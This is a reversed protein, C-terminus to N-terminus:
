TLFLMFRTYKPMKLEFSNVVQINIKKQKAKSLINRKFNILSKKCNIHDKIKFYDNSQLVVLSNEKKRKIWTLILDDTIHECSTCILIDSAKPDHKAIDNTKYSVNDFIKIEECAHDLDFSQINDKDDLLHALLGHWGAAISIKPSTYISFYPSLKDILWLKNELQNDNVSNAIDKVQNINKFKSVKKLLLSYNLM